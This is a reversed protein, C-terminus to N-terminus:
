FRSLDGVNLWNETAVRNSTLSFRALEGMQSFNDDPNDILVWRPIIDIWLLARHYHLANDFRGLWWM